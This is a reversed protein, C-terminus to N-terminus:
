SAVVPCPPGRTVLGCRGILRAAPAAYAWGVPGRSFPVDAPCALSAVLRRLRGALVVTVHEAVGILVGAVCAAALHALLMPASPLHLHGSTLALTGHGLLQGVGVYGTVALGGRPGTPVPATAAMSGVAACGLLVVAIAAGCPPMGAALGHAAVALSASVTGVFGGRLRAAVRDRAPTMRRISGLPPMPEAM